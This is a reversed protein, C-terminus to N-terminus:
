NRTEEKVYMERIGSCFETAYSEILIKRIPKKFIIEANKCGYFAGRGIWKVSEPVEVEKLSTCYKFANGGINECGEPIIVEELRVCSYFADEGIGEVSKPIVVKKLKACYRFAWYGIRGCSEPIILTSPIKYLNYAHDTYRRYNLWDKEIGEVGLRKKLM